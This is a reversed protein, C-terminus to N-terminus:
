FKEQWFLKVGQKHHEDPPLAPDDELGVGFHRFHADIYADLLSYALVAGLWWQRAVYKNSRTNYEHVLEQERAADGAARAADIEDNLDNLQLKDNVIAVILATETGGIALAKIWSGNHLQGWGPLVLSRAMVWKPQEFGKLDDPPKRELISRILRSSDSGAPVGASDVYVPHLPVLITDVKAPAM